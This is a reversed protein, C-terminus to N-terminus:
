FELGDTMIFYVLQTMDTIEFINVTHYLMHALMCIDQPRLKLCDNLGQLPLQAPKTASCPGLGLSAVKDGEIGQVATCLSNYRATLFGTQNHGTGSCGIWISLIRM